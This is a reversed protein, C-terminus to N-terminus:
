PLSLPPGVLCMPVDIAAAPPPFLPFFFSFARSTSASSSIVNSVPLTRKKKRNFMSSTWISVGIYVAAAAAATYAIIYDHMREKRQRAHGVNHAM